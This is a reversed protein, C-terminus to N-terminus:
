LALARSVTFDEVVTVDRTGDLPEVSHLHQLCLAQEEVGRLAPCGGPVVFRGVAPSDFDVLACVDCNM